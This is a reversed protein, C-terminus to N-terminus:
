NANGLPSSKGSKGSTSAVDSSKGPSSPTSTPTDAEETFTFTLSEVTGEESEDCGNEKANSRLTETANNITTWLVRTSVRM